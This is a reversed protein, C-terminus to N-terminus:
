AERALDHAPLRGTCLYANVRRGVCAQRVRRVPRAPPPGEPHPVAGVGRREAVDGRVIATMRSASAWGVGTLLFELRETRFKTVNPTPLQSVTSM